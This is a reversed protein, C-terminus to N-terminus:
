AQTTTTTAAAQQEANVIRQATAQRVKAEQLAAKAEDLDEKRNDLLVRYEAIRQRYEATTYTKEGNASSFYVQCFKIGARPRSNAAAGTVTFKKSSMNFYHGVQSWNPSSYSMYDPHEDAVKKEAYWNDVTKGADAFTGLNEAIKAGNVTFQK